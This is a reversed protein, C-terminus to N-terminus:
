PQDPADDNHSNLITHTFDVLYGTIFAHTFDVLTEALEECQEPTATMKHKDAWAAVRQAGAAIAVKLADTNPLPTAPAGAIDFSV